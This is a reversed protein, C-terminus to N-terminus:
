LCSAICFEVGGGGGGRVTYRMASKPKSISLIMADGLNETWACHLALSTASERSHDFDDSTSVMLSQGQCDKLFFAGHMINTVDRESCKRSKVQM